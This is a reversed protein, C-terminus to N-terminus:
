IGKNKNKEFENLMFIINAAYNDIENDYFVTIIEEISYNINKCEDYIIKNNKV